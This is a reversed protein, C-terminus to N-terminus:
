SLSGEMMDEKPCVGKFDCYRCVAEKRPRISFSSEKRILHWNTLFKQYRKMWEEFNDDMKKIRIKQDKMLSVPSSFDYLRSEELEQLNLYGMLMVPKKCHKSLLFAYHWLQIVDFNMLENESPISSSSRKLDFLFLGEESEITLDIKGGYNFSSSAYHFEQEFSVRPHNLKGILSSFFLEIKKLKGELQALFSEFTWFDLLLHKEELFFELKSRLKLYLDKNIRGDKLLFASILEHEFIGEFKPGWEALKSEDFRIKREYRLFCRYPCDLYTQIKSASFEGLSPRKNEKLIRTSFYSEKRERLQLVELDLNREVLTFSSFFEGWYAGELLSQPALISLKRKKLANIFRDQFFLFSLEKRRVPGLSSLKTLVRQNETVWFKDEFFEEPFVLFAEEELADLEQFTKIFIQKKSEGEREPSFYNRPLDLEVVQFFVKLQMLSLIRLEGEQPSFKIFDLLTEIWLLYVKVLRYNETKEKQVLQILENRLDGALDGLNRRKDLSDKMRNFVFLNEQAFLSAEIKVREVGTPFQLSDKVALESSVWFLHIRKKQELINELSANFSMEKYYFIDIEESYEKEIIEESDDKKELPSEEIWAIWDTWRARKAVFEPILIYIETYHGYERLFDLQLASYFEIGIFIFSREKLKLSPAEKTLLLTAKQEDLYDVKDVFSFVDWFLDEELFPIEPVIEKIIEEDFTFGRVDTLFEYILHLQNWSSKRYDLFSTLLLLWKSKSLLLDSKGPLRELESKLFFGFTIVDIELSGVKERLGDAREAGSTVMKLSSNNSRCSGEFASIKHFADEEDLYRIVHLM